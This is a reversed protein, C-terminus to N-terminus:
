EYASGTAKFIISNIEAELQMAENAKPQGNPGDSVDSYKEIFEVAARLGNLMKPAAAILRADAMDHMDEGEVKREIVAVEPEIFIYYESVEGISNLETISWPGPTHKDKM